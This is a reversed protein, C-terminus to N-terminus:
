LVTGQFHFFQESVRMKDAEEVSSSIDHESNSKNHYKSTNTIVHQPCIDKATFSM